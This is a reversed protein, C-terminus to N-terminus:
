LFRSELQAIATPFLSRMDSPVPACLQMQKKTIPHLFTLLFGHLAQRKIYSYSPHYLFDGILPYGLHKMHVRIQHTRGTELELQVLSLNYDKRYNLKKFHTVATEGTEENVVREVTSDAKRAIKARICGESPVNGECIALYTRSFSHIRVQAGLSNASLLHKAIVTLGTTDRDLRNICRFPYFHKRQDQYAFLANTLTHNRHNISPHIPMGSPKNIAIMDEDEYIVDLTTQWFEPTDTAPEDPICITLLDGEKLTENVYAWIGNRLISNQTKKLLVILAHSYGEKKLFSLITQENQKSIQYTLKRM